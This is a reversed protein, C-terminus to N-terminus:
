YHPPITYHNNCHAKLGDILTQNETGGGFNLSPQGAPSAPGTKFVPPASLGPNRNCWGEALSKGDYHLPRCTARDLGLDPITVGHHRWLLTILYAHVLITKLSKHCLLNPPEIGCKGVM